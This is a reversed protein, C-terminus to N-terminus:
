KVVAGNANFKVGNRIIFVQGDEVVKVTTNEVQINDVGVRCGISASNDVVVVATMKAANASVRAQKGIKCVYRAKDMRHKRAALRQERALDVIRCNLIQCRPHTFRATKSIKVHVTAIILRAIEKGVSTNSM